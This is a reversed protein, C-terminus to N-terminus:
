HVTIGLGIQGVNLDGEDFNMGLGNWFPTLSTNPAIRIDWGLGLLAGAGTEGASFSFGGGSASVEIRSVGLGGLLFFGSSLSPYFHALVTMTGVTLRAGADSKTWGNTGGGLLWRDGLTGGLALGGSLGGERDNCESCGLSGYGLGLNLWFGDRTQAHQASAGNPLASLLVAAVLALVYKPANHM